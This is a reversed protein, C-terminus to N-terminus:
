RAFFTAVSYKPATYAVIGNKPSVEGLSKYRDEDSKRLTDFVGSSADDVAAATTALFLALLIIAYM